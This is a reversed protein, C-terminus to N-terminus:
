TSTAAVAVSKIDWLQGTWELDGQGLSASLTVTVAITGDPAIGLSTPTIILDGTLAGHLKYSKKMGPFLGDPTVPTDNGGLAVGACVNTFGGVMFVSTGGNEAVTYEALGSEEGDNLYVMTLPGGGPTTAIYVKASNAALTLFADGGPTESIIVANVSTVTKIYYKGAKAVDLIGGSLVYIIDGEAANTFLGTATITGTATAYAGGGIIDQEWPAGSADAQTQMAIATGRGALGANGWLGANGDYGSAVQIASPAICTLRTQNIVTAIIGKVMATGGPKSLSVLQVGTANAPYDQTLVGAFALNNSQNPPAVTKLGRAGFADSATEDTDTTVYELDYCMGRGRELADTGRYVFLGLNESRDNEYGALCVTNPM